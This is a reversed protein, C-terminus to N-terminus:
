GPSAVIAELYTGERGDWWVERTPGDPPYELVRVQSRNGPRFTHFLRGDPLVLVQEPWSGVPVRRVVRLTLDITDLRFIVVERRTSGRYTRKVPFFFSEGVVTGTSWRALGEMTGVWEGPGDLEDISGDLSRVAWNQEDTQLLLRGADTTRIFWLGTADAM